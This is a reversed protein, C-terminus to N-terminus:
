PANPSWLRGNPFHNRYDSEFSTFAPLPLLAEDLPGDQVTGLTAHFTTGSRADRLRGDAWALDVTEGAVERSYVRWAGPDRPDVVVAIPLEGLVDNVVGGARQVELVPYAIPRPGIEVVLM